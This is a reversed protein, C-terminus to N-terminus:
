EEDRHRCGKNSPYAESIPDRVQHFVDLLFAPSLHRFVEMQNTGHVHSPNGAHRRTNKVFHRVLDYMNRSHMVM